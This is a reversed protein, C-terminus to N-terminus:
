RPPVITVSQAHLEIASMKTLSKRERELAAWVDTFLPAAFQMLQPHIPLRGISGGRNQAIVSGNNLSVNYAGGVCLSQGFLSREITVRCLNE